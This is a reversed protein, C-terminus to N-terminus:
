NKTYDEKILCRKGIKDDNRSIKRTKKKEYSGSPLKKTSMPSFNFLNYGIANFTMKVAASEVTTVM